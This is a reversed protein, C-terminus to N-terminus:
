GFFLESVITGADTNKDIVYNKGNSLSVTFQKGDYEMKTSSSIVTNTEYLGLFSKETIYYSNTGGVQKTSVYSVNTACGISVFACILTIVLTFFSIRGNTQSEAPSIGIISLDFKSRIVKSVKSAIIIFAVSIPVYTLLASFTNQKTLYGGYNCQRALYVILAYGIICAVAFVYPAFYLCIARFKNKPQKVRNEKINTAKNYVRIQKKAVSKSM